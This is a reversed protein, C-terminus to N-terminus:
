PMWVDDRGATALVMWATGAVASATSIGYRHDSRTAYPFSGDPAQAAGLSDILARYGDADGARHLALAVGFSGEFWLTPVAGPYAPSDYYPMYGDIGADTIEFSSLAALADAARAEHGAALLQVAGWSSVDLADATDPGAASVGQDFRALASNWLTSQMADDLDAALGAYDTSADGLVSAAHTLAHWADLNHETSAWALTVDPDFSGGSGADGYGGLFLGTTPGSTSRTGLLFGLGAVAAARYRGIAPDSPYAQIYGLLADVAVAHAGTRYRREASAPASQLAAFVFGGAHPGTTTQMRLLGDVLEKARGPRDTVLAADLALAQDYVVTRDQLGTGWEPDSATYAYSRILGTRGASDALVVGTAMEVLRFLKVGTHSNEFRFTGDTRAPVSSWYSIADTALLQQVELGRYTDGTPWRPGHPAYGASADLLGLEWVGDAPASVASLDIAFAGTDPAALAQVPVQVTATPTRRYAQIIWRGPEPPLLVQGTFVGRFDDAVGDPEVSAAVGTPSTAGTVTLVAKNEVPYDRGTITFTGTVAGAYGPDYETSASIDSATVATTRPEMQADLWANAAAVRAHDTVTLEEPALAHAPSAGAVMMGTSLIAVM